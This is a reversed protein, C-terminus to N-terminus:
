RGSVTAGAGTAEPGDNRASGAGAGAGGARGPPAPPSDLALEYAALHARASARWSFRAARERGRAALASRLREDATVRLLQACLGDADLPDAYLAAEACTEVIGPARAALVPVGAQMAELPTLGFGEYLAPHVLAAAGALLEALDPQPECRVGPAHARASGALVLALAGPGAAARYRAYAVLLTRLNKRPEADGVYLLHAPARARAAPEQGPGHPAVVVRRPDLGWRALADRRTTHSVCVVAGAGRAARRHAVAAWRRFAPAFCEPLRVFALDHLTVVQACPAGRALAPLPHHLVDARAARARRPLEVRRWWADRALNRASGIGGGAPPRRGADAAELVDVGEDRLAAALRRVYVATGSPGRLAYSTDIMVRM